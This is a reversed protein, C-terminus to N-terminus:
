AIQCASLIARALGRFTGRKRFATILASGTNMFEFDPVSGLLGGVSAWRGSVDAYM